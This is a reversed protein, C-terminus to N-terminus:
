IRSNKERGVTNVWTTKEEYIPRQASERGLRAHILSLPAKRHGGDGRLECLCAGGRLGTPTTCHRGTNYLTDWCFQPPHIRGTDPSLAAPGSQLLMAVPPPPPQTPGSPLLRSSRDRVAIVLRLSTPQRALSRALSHALHTRAHTATRTCSHLTSHKGPGHPLKKPFKCHISSTFVGLLM